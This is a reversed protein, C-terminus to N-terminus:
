FLLLIVKFNCIHKANCKLPSKTRIVYICLSHEYGLFLLFIVFTVIVVDAHIVCGFLFVIIIIILQTNLIYIYVVHNRMLRVNNSM